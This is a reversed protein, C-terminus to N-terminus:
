TNVIVFSRMTMDNLLRILEERQDRAWERANRLASIATRYTKANNELFFWSFTILTHYQIRAAPNITVETHTTAYLRFFGKKPDYNATIVNTQKENLTQFPIRCWRYLIRPAFFAGYYWVVLRLSESAPTLAAVTMNSPMILKAVDGRLGSEITSPRSGDWFKARAIFITSNTLDALTKFIIGQEHSINLNGLFTSIVLAM